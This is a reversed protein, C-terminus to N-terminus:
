QPVNITTKSPSAAGTLTIAGAGSAGGLVRGNVTSGDKVTADRGALITGNWTTGSGITVDLGAVFYINKAQAGNVLKIQTPLLLTGSDTMSSDVQFVFVANPDNQGDMTATGGAALGLNANHYVGANFTKLNLEDGAVTGKTIAKNKGENWAITLDNTVSNATGGNDFQDGAYYIFGNVTLGTPSTYIRSLCTQSAGANGTADTCVALPYLAVNGNVVTVGTSTMGARSAVGYSGIGRLNIPPTCLTGSTSFTFVKNNALPGGSADKVGTTVTATYSTNVLLNNSPVFTATKTQANYSVSGNVPTLGAGAALTFTNSTVTLPDMLKDFTAEVKPPPCINSAGDLPNTSVVQPAVAPGATTTFTWLYNAALANGALDKAGTTVTATYKTSATLNSTPTFTAVSSAGSYTVAGDVAVPPTGQTVTYTTSTLTTPDMPKSFTANVKQALPVNVAINLPDTLTVTPPTTDATAGTTFTWNYDAALANGATDKVGAKITAGYTTNTALNAGPSFTATAGVSAVTGAILTSGQSLTFTTATLTSADMATSFLASVKSNTFVGTASTAPITSKVTPPVGPGAPTGGFEVLQQGCGALLALLVIALHNQRTKM